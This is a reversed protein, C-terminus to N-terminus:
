FSSFPFFFPVVSPHLVILISRHMLPLANASAKATASNRSTQSAISDIFRVQPAFSQEAIFLTATDQSLPVMRIGSTIFYPPCNMKEGGYTIFHGRGRDQTGKM